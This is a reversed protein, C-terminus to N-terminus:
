SKGFSLLLWALLLSPPPALRLLSVRALFGLSEESTPLLPLFRENVTTFSRNKKNNQVFTVLRYFLFIRKYVQCFLSYSECNARNKGRHILTQGSLGKFVPQM